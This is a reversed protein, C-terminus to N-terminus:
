PLPMLTSFAAVMFRVKRLGDYRGRVTAYDVSSLALVEKQFLFWFSKMWQHRTVRLAGERLSRAAGGIDDRPAVAVFRDLSGSGALERDQPM